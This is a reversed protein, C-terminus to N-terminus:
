RRSWSRPRPIVTKGRHFGDETLRRTTLDLRSDVQSQMELTFPPRMARASSSSACPLRSCAPAAPYYWISWSLLLPAFALCPPSVPHSAHAVCSPSLRRSLPESRPNLSSIRFILQIGKRDSILCRSTQSSYCIGHCCVYQAPYNRQLTPDHLHSGQYQAKPPM